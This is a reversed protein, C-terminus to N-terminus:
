RRFYVVFPFFCGSSAFRIVVKLAATTKANEQSHSRCVSVCCLLPLSPIPSASLCCADPHNVECRRKRQCTLSKLCGSVRYKACKNSNFSSEAM